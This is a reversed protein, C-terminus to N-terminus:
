SSRGILKPFPGHPTVSSPQKTTDVAANQNKRADDNEAQVIMRAERILAVATKVTDTQLEESLLKMFLDQIVSRQGEYTQLSLRKDIM